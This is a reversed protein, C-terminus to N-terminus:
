FFYGQNFGFTLYPKEPISGKKTKQPVEGLETSDEEDPDTWWDELEKKYKEVKELSKREEDLYKDINLILTEIPKLEDSKPITAELSSYLSGGQISSFEVLGKEHLYDLLNKQYRYVDEDANSKPLLIIKNTKYSLIILIKPHDYIIINGDLTKKINLSVSGEPRLIAKYDKELIIKNNNKM